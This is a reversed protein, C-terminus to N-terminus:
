LCGRRVISPLLVHDPARAIGPDPNFLRLVLSFSRGTVPIWNQPQPRPGIDITFQGDPLRLVSSKDVSYRDAPNPILYEDDGYATLSWWRAKPDAGEVEYLCAGDLPQRSSDQTALYYIVEHRNFAFLGHLAVAARTYPDGAPSGILLNTEWPGDEVSAPVERGVTLWTAALGLATGAVLTAAIKAAVHM